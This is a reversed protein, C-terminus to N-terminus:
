GLLYIRPHYGYATTPKPGKLPDEHAADRLRHYPVGVAGDSYSSLLLYPNSPHLPTSRLARLGSDRTRVPTPGPIHLSRLIGYKGSTPHIPAGQLRERAVRDM